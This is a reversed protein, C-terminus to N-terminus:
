RSRTERNPLYPTLSFGFQDLISEDSASRDVPEARLELLNGIRVLYLVNLHSDDGPQVTVTGGDFLQVGIPDAGRAILLARRLRRVHRLTILAVSATEPDNDDDDFGVLPRHGSTVVPSGATEGSATVSGTVSDSDEWAAFVVGSVLLSGIASERANLRLVPKDDGLM